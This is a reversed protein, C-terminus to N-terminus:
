LKIEVAARMKYNEMDAATLASNPCSDRLSTMADTDQQTPKKLYYYILWRNTSTECRYMMMAAESKNTAGELEENPPVKDFFDIPVLKALLLMKGVSCPYTSATSNYIWGGASYTCVGNADPVLSTNATYGGVNITNKQMKLNGIAAELQQVAARRATYRSDDVSSRYALTVITALLAIVVIVVLLEVVTFGRKM